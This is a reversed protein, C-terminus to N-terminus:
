SNTVNQVINHITSQLNNHHPSVATESSRRQAQQVIGPHYRRSGSLLRSRSPTVGLKDVLASQGDGSVDRSSTPSPRFFHSNLRDM